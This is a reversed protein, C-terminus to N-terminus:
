PQKYVVNKFSRIVKHCYERLWRISFEPGKKEAEKDMEETMPIVVVPQAPYQVPSLTIDGDALVIEQPLQEQHDKVEEIFSEVELPMEKLPETEVAIGSDPQKETVAIGGAGEKQTTGAVVPPNLDGIQNPDISTAIQGLGAPVDFTDQINSPTYGLPTLIPDSTQTLNPTPQIEQIEGTDLPKKDQASDFSQSTVQSTEVEDLVKELIDLKEDESLEVRIPPPFPSGSVLTKRPQEDTQLIQSTPAQSAIVDPENNTKLISQNGIALSTGKTAFSSKLATLMSTKNQASVSQM